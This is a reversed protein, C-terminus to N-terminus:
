LTVTVEEKLLQGLRVVATQYPELERALNAEREIDAFTPVNDPHTMEYIQLALEASNRYPRWNRDNLYLNRGNRANQPSRYAIHRSLRKSKVPFFTKPM